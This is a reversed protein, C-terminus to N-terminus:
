RAPRRHYLGGGKAEFAERHEEVQRDEGAHEPRGVAIQRPVLQGLAAGVEVVEGAEDREGRHQRARQRSASRSSRPAQGTSASTPSANRLAKQDSAGSSTIRREPVTTSVVSNPM